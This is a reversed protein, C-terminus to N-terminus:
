NYKGNNESRLRDAIYLAVNIMMVTITSITYVRIFSHVSVMESTYTLSLLTVLGLVNVIAKHRQMGSSYLLIGSAFVGLRFVGVISIGYLYIKSDSFSEGFFLDILWPGLTNLTLFLALAVVGTMAILYVELNLAGKSKRMIPLMVNIFVNGVPMFCQLLKQGVSYLGVSIPGFIASILIADLLVFSKSAAADLFYALGRKFIAGVGKITSLRAGQEYQIVADFHKRSRALMYLRSIFISLLISEVNLSFYGNYLRSLLSFIGLMLFQCLATEIKIKSDLWHKGSCRLFALHFDAISMVFFSTLLSICIYLGSLYDVWLAVPVVGLFLLSKVKINLTANLSSPNNKSAESFDALVRVQHGYDVVISLLTAMAYAAAFVGFMYNTEFKAVIIFTCFSMLSTTIVGASSKLLNILLHLKPM